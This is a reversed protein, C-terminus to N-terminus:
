HWPTTEDNSISLSASQTNRHKFYEDLIKRAKPAAEEGGHGANEVVVAIAIEPSNYPAYGVYVANDRFRKEVKSEDYKEEGMAKLQVTGTKGASEYRAGTFATKATGYPWQTVKHMAMQVAKLNAANSFDAQQSAPQSSINEWVGATEIGSVLHLNYRTDGAGLQAIANALQLPTAIWYGQGIGTIVTEGPFWPVKRATRKWERSPMIGPVEEGMDIGTYQGFGFRKMYDSLTDIGM